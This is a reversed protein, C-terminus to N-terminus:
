QYENMYPPCPSTIFTLDVNLSGVHVENRVVYSSCSTLLNYIDIFKSIYMRISVALHFLHVPFTCLISCKEFLFFFFDQMLIRYWLCVLFHHVSRPLQVNGDSCRWHGCYLTRKVIWLSWVGWESGGFYVYLFLVLVTYVVLLFITKSKWHWKFSNGTPLNACPFRYAGRGLRNESCM